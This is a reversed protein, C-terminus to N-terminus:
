SKSDKSTPKRRPKKNDKKWIQIAGMIRAVFETTDAYYNPFAERLNAISDASAFVVDMHPNSRNQLEFETQLKWAAEVNEATSGFVKLRRKKSDLLVVYHVANLLDQEVKQISTALGVLKEIRLEDWLPAIEVVLGHVTVPTDPAFPLGDIAGLYSSALLFFRKWSNDGMGRKLDQHTFTSVVEVATAWIHQLHTRLQFEVTLGDYSTTNAAQSKYRYILHIGRYGDPKANLFYDNLTIYDWSRLNDV